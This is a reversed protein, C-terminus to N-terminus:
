SASKVHMTYTNHRCRDSCITAAHCICFGQSHTSFAFIQLGHLGATFLDCVIWVKTALAGFNYM